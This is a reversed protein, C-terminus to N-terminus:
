INGTLGKRKRRTHRVFYDNPDIGAAYLAKGWNGFYAEAASRASGWLSSLARRHWLRAPHISSSIRM